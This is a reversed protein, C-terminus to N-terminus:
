KPPLKPFPGKIVLYEQSKGDLILTSETLTENGLVGIFGAYSSFRGVLAQVTPYLNAYSIRKLPLETDGFTATLESRRHHIFVPSGHRNVNLAIEPENADSYHDYYHNSTLLGFSSCGSDYIVNESAGDFTVPMVIKRGKFDFPTFTGLASFSQPRDKYLRLEMTTFDIVCVRQDIFDSGITGISNAETNDWDIGGRSRSVSGAKMTVNSGGVSLQFERFYTDGDEEYTEIECGREKLANVAGSRLFTSPAGTDFQMSFTNDFGPISVPLLMAERPEVHGAYRRASWRIPVSLSNGEVTLTNPTDRFWTHKFYALGGFVGAVAFVFLALLAVLIRKRTKKKM